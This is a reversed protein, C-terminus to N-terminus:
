AGIATDTPEIRLAERPAADRHRRDSGLAFMRRLLDRTPQPEIAVYNDDYDRAEPHGDDLFLNPVRRNSNM